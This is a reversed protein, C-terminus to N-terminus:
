AVTDNRIVKLSMSHSLLIVCLMARNRQLLQAEQLEYTNDRYIYLVPHKFFYGGLVKKLTKVETLGIAYFKAFRNAIWRWM